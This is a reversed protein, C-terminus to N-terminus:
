NGGEVGIPQVPDRTSSLDYLRNDISMKLTPGHRVAM